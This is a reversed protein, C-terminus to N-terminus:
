LNEGGEDSTKVQFSSSANFLVDISGNTMKINRIVWVRYTGTASTSAGPFDSPYSKTGHPKGDYSSFIKLDPTEVFVRTRASELHENNSSDKYGYEFEVSENTPIDSPIIKLYGIPNQANYNQIKFTNKSKVNLLYTTLLLFCLILIITLFLVIVGKRLVKNKNKEM